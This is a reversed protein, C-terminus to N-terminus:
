VYKTCEGHSDDFGADQAAVLEALTGFCRWSQDYYYGNRQQLAWRRPLPCIAIPEVRGDSSIRWAVVPYPHSSRGDIDRICFGSKAAKITNAQTQKHVLNTM